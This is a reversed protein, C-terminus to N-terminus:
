AFISGTEAKPEDRLLADTRQRAPQSQRSGPQQRPSDGQNSANNQPTQGRQTDPQTQASAADNSATVARAFGPDASSMAVSMAGTDDQEFRLSVRGFEAHQVSARVANPSAEERARSLTEVLTAFDVREARHESRATPAADQRPTAPDTNLILPQDPEAATEFTPPEDSDISAFKVQQEMAAGAKPAEQAPMAVAAPAPQAPRPGPETQTSQAPTAAPAAPARPTARQQRDIQSSKALAIATAAPAALPTPAAVPELEIQATRALAIVAAAPAAIARTNQALPQAQPTGPQELAADPTAVQRQPAAFMAAILALDPLASASPTPLDDTQPPADDSTPAVPDLEAAVAIAADPLDKGGPQRVPLTLAASTQIGNPMIIATPTQAALLSEFLGAPTANATDATIEPNALTTAAPALNRLATIALTSIPSTAPLEFM